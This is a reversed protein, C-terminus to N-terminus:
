MARRILKWIKVGALILLVAGAIAAVPVAGAAIAAEVDSTDIGQAFSAGSVAVLSAAPVVALVRNKLKM